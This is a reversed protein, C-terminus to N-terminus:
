PTTEMLRLLGGVSKSGPKMGPEIWEVHTSGDAVEKDWVFWSYSTTGGGNQEQGKPYMSLRETFVLLISPRRTRYILEYRKRSELFATRLLLCVKRRALKYAHEFVEEAINFPPNTVVNAVKDKRDFFDVVEGYGRSHLDSAIVPYGGARLVEAMEGTGCCPELIEGDFKVYKLLASTGWPPTPYFDAGEEEVM